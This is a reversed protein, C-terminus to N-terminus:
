GSFYDIARDFPIVQDAKVWGSVRGSVVWLWPGNVHEVTFVRHVRGEDVVTDARHVGGEDVGPNGVKLPTEVKTVVEVGILGGGSQGTAQSSIPNLVAVALLGVAVPHRM